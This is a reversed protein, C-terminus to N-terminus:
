RKPMDDPFRVVTSVTERALSVRGTSTTCPVTTKTAASGLLSGLVALLTHRM